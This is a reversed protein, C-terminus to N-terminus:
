IFKKVEGVISVIGNLSSNLLQLASVGTDAFKFDVWITKIITQHQSPVPIQTAPDVPVDHIYVGPGFRVNSPDWSVQGGKCSSATIRVKEHRTQEVLNGHKNENNIKNFMGLWNYGRQYPQISELYQYLMTASTDLGPYWNSMKSSFSRANPLIPFYFRANGSASQCHTEKITHALYDLASRLNEYFNKIDVKLLDSIKKDHLSKDYETKIEELQSKARLFLAEIENERRM